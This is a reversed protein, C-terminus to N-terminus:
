RHNRLQADRLIGALRAFQVQLSFTEEVRRRGAAGMQQRLDADGVLRALSSAWDAISSALEGTEGQRVIDVNVGVPSAVVPLGCAMYQILKYGCKGREWPEDLLPMIGVDLGSLEAVEENESWPLAEFPTGKVQDSRAGIAVCRIAQNKALEVLVPTLQLLYHATAPSGIWGIVVVDKKVKPKPTTYRDLDVVTPLWEVHRAGADNARAALYNNGATVVDARRMVSDIKRGLLWRVLGIRHQDYRHFLADDYDAVVAVNNSFWRAEFWAPLWPFLEKEVWVVDYKKFKWLLRMRRLYARAVKWGSVSGAYLDSVYGDDLLPAVDVDFGESQLAPVFQLMRLRSSAGLADYRPLILLRM